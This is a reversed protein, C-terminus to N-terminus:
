LRMHARSPYPQLQIADIKSIILKLTENTWPTGKVEDFAQTLSADILSQVAPDVPIGDTKIKIAQSIAALAQTAATIRDEVLSQDAPDLPLPYVKDEIYDLDGAITSTPVGLRSLLEQVSLEQAVEGLESITGAASQILKVQTFASSKIPNGAIGGVLNGDKIVCQTYDPGGRDAFKLQWNNLLELTIGVALGSGLDDKGAAMAVQTMDMNVQFAEWERIANILEQITLIVQPAEILIIKNVKEFVIAM